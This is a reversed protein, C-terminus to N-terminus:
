MFHKKRNLLEMQQLLFGDAMPIKGGVMPRFIEREPLCISTTEPPMAM